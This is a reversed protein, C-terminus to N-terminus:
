PRIDALDIFLTSAGNSRTRDIMQFVTIDNDGCQRVLSGTGTDHLLDSRLHLRFFQRHDTIQAILGIM